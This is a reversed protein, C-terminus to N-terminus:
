FIEVERLADLTRIAQERLAPDDGRFVALLCAVAEARRGQHALAQGRELTEVLTTGPLGAGTSASSKDKAVAPAPKAVTWPRPLGDQEGRVQMLWCAGTRVQRVGWWSTWLWLGGNVLVWLCTFQGRGLGMMVFTCAMRIGMVLLAQQFHRRQYLYRARLGLLLFLHPAGTLLVPWTWDDRPGLRAVASVLFFVTIFPSFFLWWYIAEMDREARVQEDTM